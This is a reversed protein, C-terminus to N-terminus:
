SRRTLWYGVLVGVAAGAGIVTWPQAHVYNNTSKATKRARKVINEGVDEVSDKAISIRQQIKAKANNLEDGTLHTTSKILDEIDAVFSQFEHTLNSQSIDFHGDSKSHASTKPSTQM